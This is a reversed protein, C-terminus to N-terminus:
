SYKGVWVRRGKPDIETKPEYIERETYMVNSSRKGEQVFSFPVVPKEETVSKLLDLAQKAQIGIPHEKFSGWECINSLLHQAQILAPDRRCEGELNKLMGLVMRKTAGQIKMVGEMPHPKFSEIEKRMFDELDRSANIPPLLDVGDLEKSGGIPLHAIIKRDDGENGIRGGEHFRHIKKDFLSLYWDGDLIPDNGIIILYDNQYEIIRFIM